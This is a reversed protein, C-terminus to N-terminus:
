PHCCPQGEALLPSRPQLCQYLTDRVKGIGYKTQNCPACCNFQDVHDECGSLFGFYSDFGRSTPLYQPCYFGQHWKGIMHTSYGASKLKAPFMEYGLDTGELTSFYAFNTRTAAM